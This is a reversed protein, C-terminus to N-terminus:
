RMSKEIRDGVFGGAAGAAAGIAAGGMLTGSGLGGVVAGTAAGVGAGGLTREGTQRDVPQCGMLLITAVILGVSAARTSQRAM